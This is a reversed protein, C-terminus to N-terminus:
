SNSVIFIPSIIVVIICVCAAFLTTTRTQLSVHLLAIDFLALQAADLASIYHSVKALSVVKSVAVADIVQLRLFNM